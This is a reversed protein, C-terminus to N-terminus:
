FSYGIGMAGFAQDASGVDAVIPSRAFDGQLRKYSAIGFLSWGKPGQGLSRVLLVNGGLDKLGGGATHPRLGSATSQEPSIAFYYRAYDDGAIDASLSMQAFTRKGIRRSYEVSPTLLYSQHAGAVDRVYSVRLALRDTRSTFGGATGIEAFGGLEVASKLKGLAAVQPDRVNGNRNMRLGIVPGFSLDVGSVAGNPIADFNLQLGRLFFDHGAVTGRLNGGPIAKYEDAGEYSPAIGAGLGITVSDGAPPRGSQAGSQAFAPAGVFLAALLAAAASWDHRTMASM